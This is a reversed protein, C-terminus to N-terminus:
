FLPSELEEVKDTLEGAVYQAYQALWGNTYQANPETSNRLVQEVAGPTLHDRMLEYIFSVLKSNININGSSERLKDNFSM